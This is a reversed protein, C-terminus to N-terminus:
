TAGNPRRRLLCDAEALFGASTAGSVIEVPEFGWERLTALVELYDPAGEYFPQSALEVHIAVVRSLVGVAGRLVRLDYGQADVKLFIREADPAVEELIEDLRVVAVCERVTTALASYQALGVRSAPLLSNLVPTGAVHLDAEGREDGLAMEYVAWSSDGAAKRELAAAEAPSPEFSIVRGRFGLARCWGSFEGQYAGVDVLLDPDTERIVQELASGWRTGAPYRILDLGLRHLISRANPM